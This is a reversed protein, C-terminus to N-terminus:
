GEENSKPCLFLGAASGAHQIQRPDKQAQTCSYDILIREAKDVVPRPRLFAGSAIAKVRQFEKM